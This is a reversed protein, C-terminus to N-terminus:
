QKAGTVVQLGGTITERLAADLKAALDANERELSRLKAALESVRGEAMRKLHDAQGLREATDILKEVVEEFESAAM